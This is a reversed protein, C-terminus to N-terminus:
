ECVCFRGIPSFVRRPIRFSLHPPRPSLATKEAMEMWIEWQVEEEELDSHGVPEAAREAVAVLSSGPEYSTKWKNDRPPRIAVQDPENMEYQRTRRAEKEGGEREDEDEGLTNARRRRLHQAQRLPHYYFLTSCARSWCNRSRGSPNSSSQLRGGMKNQSWSGNHRIDGENTLWVSTLYSICIQIQWVPPLAELIPLCPELFPYTVVHTIKIRATWECLSLSSPTHYITQGIPSHPQWVPQLVFALHTLYFTGFPHCCFSFLYFSLWGPRYYPILALPADFPRIPERQRGNPGQQKWYYTHLVKFIYRFCNFLLFLRGFHRTNPAWVRRIWSDVSTITTLSSSSRTNAAKWTTVGLRAPKWLLWSSRIMLRTGLRRLFWRGPFSPWQTGNVLKAPSPLIQTSAETPWTIPLVKIRFWKASFEVLLTARLMRRPDFHHLIPSKTFAKLDYFIRKLFIPRQM